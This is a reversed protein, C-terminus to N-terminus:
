LQIKRSRLYELPDIYQNNKLGMKPNIKELINICSGNPTCVNIPVDNTIVPNNICVREQDFHKRWKFVM